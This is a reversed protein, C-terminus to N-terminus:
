NETEPEDEIRPEGILDPRGPELPPNSVPMRIAQDEPTSLPETAQPQIQAAGFAIALLILLWLALRQPNPLKPGQGRSRGDSLDTPRNEAM